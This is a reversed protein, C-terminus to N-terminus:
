SKLWHEISNKASKLRPEFDNFESEIHKSINHKSLNRVSINRKKPIHKTFVLKTGAEYIFM